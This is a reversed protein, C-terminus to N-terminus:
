NGLEIEILQQFYGFPYAGVVPIGNVFFVPAGSLNLKKADAANAQVVGRHKGSSLCQEFTKLNEIKVTSAAKILSAEDLQDQHAFLHDHMEWYKGQDGACHAAEAAKQAHQHFDLPQDRFVIRVQNPYAEMIKQMTSEARACYPCEFDSFAVITVKADRPGKSPGATGVSEIRYFPLSTRIPQKKELDAYVAADNQEDQQEGLLERLKERAGPADWVADPWRNPGKNADFFAKVQEESIPKRKAARAMALFDGPKQGAEKAAHELRMKNKETQAAEMIRQNLESAIKPNRRILDGFEVRIGKGSLAVGEENQPTRVALSKIDANKKCGGGLLFVVSLLGAYFLRM